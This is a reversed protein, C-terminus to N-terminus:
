WSGQYVANGEEGIRQKEATTYSKWKQNSAKVTAPDYMQMPRKRMSPRSNM